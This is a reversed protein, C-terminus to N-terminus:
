SADGGGPGSPHGTEFDVAIMRRVRGDVWKKVFDQHAPHSRYADLDAQTGCTVVLGVQCGDSYRSFNTGCRLQCVAQVEQALGRLADVFREQWQAAANDFEFFVIHEIMAAVERKGAISPCVM